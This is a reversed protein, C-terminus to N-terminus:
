NGLKSDIVEIATRLIQEKDARLAGVTAQSSRFSFYFTQRPTPLVYLDNLFPDGAQSTQLYSIYVLERRGITVVSNRFGSSGSIERRLTEETQTALAALDVEQEQTGIIGRTLFAAEPASRSLRLLIGARIDDETLPTETWGAPYGVLSTGETGSPKPQDGAPQRPLIAPAVYYAAAGVGASLAVVLAIRSLRDLTTNM